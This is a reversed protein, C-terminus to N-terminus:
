RQFVNKKGEGQQVEEIEREQVHLAYTILLSSKSGMVRM